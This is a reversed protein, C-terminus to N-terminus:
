ICFQQITLLIFLACSTQPDLCTMSTCFFFYQAWCRGKRIGLTINSMSSSSKKVSVYHKRNSLYSKNNDNNNFFTPVALSLSLPICGILGFVGVGCYWGISLFFLFPFLTSSYLLSLGAYALLSANARSKFGALGVVDFVPNTLDNWLSM